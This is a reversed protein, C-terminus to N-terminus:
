GEVEWKVRIGRKGHRWGKDYREVGEWGETGHRVASIWNFTKSITYAEDDPRTV